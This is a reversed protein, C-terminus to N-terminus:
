SRPCCWGLCRVDGCVQHRGAARCILILFRLPPRDLSDVTYAYLGLDTRSRPNNPTVWLFRWPLPVVTCFIRRASRGSRAMASFGPWVSRVWSSNCRNPMMTPNVVCAAGAGTAVAFADV